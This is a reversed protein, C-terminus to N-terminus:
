IYDKEKKSLKKSNLKWITISDTGGVNTAFTITVIARLKPYVGFEHKMVEPINTEALQECFFLLLLEVSRQKEAPRVDIILNLLKNFTILHSEIEREESQVIQSNEVVDLKRDVKLNSQKRDPHKKSM